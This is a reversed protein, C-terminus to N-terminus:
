RHFRQGLRQGLVCPLVQPGAELLSAPLTSEDPQPTRHLECLDAILKLNGLEERDADSDCLASAATWDVPTGDAIQEVLLGLNDGARAM